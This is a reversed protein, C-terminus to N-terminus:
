WRIFFTETNIILTGLIPAWTKLGGM